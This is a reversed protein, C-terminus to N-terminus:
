CFAMIRSSGLRDWTYDTEREPGGRFREGNEPVQSAYIDLAM